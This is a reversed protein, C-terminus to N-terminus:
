HILQGTARPLLKPVMRGDVLAFGKVKELHISHVGQPERWADYEAKHNETSDHAYIRNHM